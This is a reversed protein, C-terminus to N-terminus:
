YFIVLRRMTYLIDESPNECINLYLKYKLNSSIGTNERKSIKQGLEVLSVIGEAAKIITDNSNHDFLDNFYNLFQNSDM